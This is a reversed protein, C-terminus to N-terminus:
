IEPCVSIKTILAFNSFICNKYFLFWDASVNEYAVQHFGIYQLRTFLCRGLNESSRSNFTPLLLSFVKPKLLYLHLTYFHLWFGHNPWLTLLPFVPSALKRSAEPCMKM